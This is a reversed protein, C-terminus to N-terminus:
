VSRCGCRYSFLCARSSKLAISGIGSKKPSLSAQRGRALTANIPPYLMPAGFPVSAIEVHRDIRRTTVFKMKLGRAARRDRNPLLHCFHEGSEFKGQASTLGHHFERELTRDLAALELEFHLVHRKFGGVRFCALSDGALAILNFRHQLRRRRRRPSSGTLGVLDVPLATIGVSGDQRRRGAFVRQAPNHIKCAVRTSPSRARTVALLQVALKNRGPEVKPM